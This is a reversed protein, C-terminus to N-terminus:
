NYAFTTLTSLAGGNSKELAPRWVFNKVRRVARPTSGFGHIVESTVDNTWRFSDQLATFM